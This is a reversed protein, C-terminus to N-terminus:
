DERSFGIRLAGWHRSKVYVPVSLDAIIEDTDRRYVQLLFEERNKAACFGTVDNFIRKTRNRMVDLGLNGTRAQSYKSNHSPLYGNRDVLVVFVIRQDKELYRDEIPTIVEDTYDDYFTTFTLPSTLPLVPFYLASFIEEESKIGLDIAKELAQSCEKAAGKALHMIKKDSVSMDEPGILRRIGAGKSTSGKKPGVANDWVNQKLQQGLLVKPSFFVSFLIVVILTLHRNM